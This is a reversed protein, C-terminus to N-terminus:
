ISVTWRVKEYVSAHVNTRVYSLFTSGGTRSVEDPDHDGPIHPKFISELQVRVHIAAQCPWCLTQPKPYLEESILTQRM